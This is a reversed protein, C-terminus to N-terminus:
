RGSREKAETHNPPAGKKGPRRACRCLPFTRPVIEVPGDAPLFWPTHGPKGPPRSWPPPSKARRIGKDACKGFLKAEKPWFKLKAMKHCFDHTKSM